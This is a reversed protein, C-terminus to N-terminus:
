EIFGKAASKVKRRGNHVPKPTLSPKENQSSLTHMGCVVLSWRGWLKNFRIMSNNGPIGM